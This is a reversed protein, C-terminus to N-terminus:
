IAHQFLYSISEGNHTRRIAEAFVHSIDIIHLKSISQQHRPAVPLSNTIILKDVDPCHQVNDLATGSLIGHIAIIYVAQAGCQSKLFHAANLYSHTSDIMDDMLLVVRDKVDGVLTMRPAGAHNHSANQMLRQAAANLQAFSAVTDEECDTVNEEDESETLEANPSNRSVLASEFQETSPSCIHVRGSRDSHILAFDVQLRDALSTVRKTGGANKAVVVAQQYDPIHQRIWRAICPEAYLNDIPKQYFGQMQSAHLDMTIVHNVGAVSLMNALLKATIPGRKKKKKSQKSYPIYPLVATIKRASAIRCSHIMILLEMISDNVLNAGSQVIYVDKDRVSMGIDISKEHNAYQKINMPGAHTGLHECIMQALEPYATGSFVVAQRM